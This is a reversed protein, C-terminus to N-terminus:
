AQNYSSILFKKYKYKFNNLKPAGIIDQPISNWIKVGAFKISKQCTKLRCRPVFLRESNRTQINHINNRAHFYNSFITPLLNNQQKYVFIGVFLKHIDECKLINLENHLKDTPYRRKKKCLTKLIKNQATQLPKLTTSDCTGFIEIGYKIYPFVYAYYIQNIRDNDIYKALYHFAGSLQNLKTIIHSVHNKWNLNEDLYIGLYKSVSVGLVETGNLSLTVRPKKKANSFVTYCTKDTNLTLKNATFWDFLKALSENAHSQLTPISKNSFFSTLTM